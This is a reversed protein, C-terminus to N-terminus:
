SNSDRGAAAAAQASPAPLIKVKSGDVLSHQGDVVVPDGADLGTVQVVQGQTLGPQVIVKKAVNGKALFVYSQNDSSLIANAPVVTADPVAALQVSGRAFMGPLVDKSEDFQVRVDFLRGVDQATGSVAVIHGRFTKGSVGDIKISVPQGTRIQEVEDSPVQGNFYVGEGGVIRAITSGSSAVTGPQIPRGFVKGSFPARIEMDAIQQTVNAINARAADAQAKASDVQAKMANVQDTLLPDLDKQAKATKLAEQAQSIAERAAEIDEARAGRQEIDLAAVASDYQSQAAVLTARQADLQNAAIAGQGVLTALRDYQKQQDDLNAKASTVAAKAEAREEPRGGLLLKRLNAQASRIQSEATVVSSTSKL